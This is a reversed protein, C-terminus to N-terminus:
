TDQEVRWDEEIVLRHSRRLFEASRLGVGDDFELGKRGYSREIEVCPHNRASEGELQNGGLRLGAPLACHKVSLPLLHESHLNQFGITTTAGNGALVTKVHELRRM